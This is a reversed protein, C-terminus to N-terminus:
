TRSNKLILFTFFRFNYKYATLDSSPLKINKNMVGIINKLIFTYQEMLTKNIKLRYYFEM